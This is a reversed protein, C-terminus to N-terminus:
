HINYDLQIPVNFVAEGRQGSRNIEKYMVQSLKLEVGNLVCGRQQRETLLCVTDSSIPTDGICYKYPKVLSKMGVSM